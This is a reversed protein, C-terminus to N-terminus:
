DVRNPTPSLFLVCWDDNVRRPVRFLRGEADWDDLMQLEADTLNMLPVPESQKRLAVGM